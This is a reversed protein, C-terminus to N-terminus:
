KQRGQPTQDCFLVYTKDLLKRGFLKSVVIFVLHSVFNGTEGLANHFTWYIKENFSFMKNKWIRYFAIAMSDIFTPFSPIIKCFNYYNYNLIYAVKFAYKFSYHHYHYVILSPDFCIKYGAELATVAWFKDEAFDTEIFPVQELASKRYMANVNDWKGAASLKETCSLKSFDPQSYRYFVTVPVSMRKFWRAPNKNLEAPVGQIGVVAQVDRDSFQAAMQELQDQEALYADQVTFYLLDGKAYKVGENRTTGHNFTGKPVRIITADYNEAIEMSGDTSDSDLIIIEVAGAITQKRIAALCRELTAAGNKVPIIVSISFMM